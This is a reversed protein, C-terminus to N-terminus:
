KYYAGVADSINDYGEKELLKALEQNITSILQPGEFIMGTIIQVLSAGLKIKHYADKASFVGGCGIIVFEGRTKKYIYKILENSLKEVPKGSIGGEKVDKEIIRNRDKTLNGCIFGDIKYKRSIKIIKDIKEKSLDPAMKLFIPKKTKLITKLLKDLKMSNSFDTGGFANPCSINIAIYDGLDVLKKYSETYDKIGGDVTTTEICNTKAINIGIPINFTKSQLRKQIVDCGDNALGYNVVLGRSKILRWLRPKKNGKCPEATVSGIESFGFGVSSIIQTLKANKDFGAALGIPNKFKIGCITQELKKNSYSFFLKTIFRTVKFRGLFYGLAVASDHVEEPNFKFLLPRTLSTYIGQFLNNRVSVLWEKM